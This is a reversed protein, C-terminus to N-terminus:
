HRRSLNSTLKILGSKNKAVLKISSIFKRSKKNLLKLVKDSTFYEVLLEVEINKELESFNIKKKRIINIIKNKNLIIKLFNNIKIAESAAPMGKYQPIMRNIINQIDNKIKSKYSNYKKM